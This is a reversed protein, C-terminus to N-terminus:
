RAGGRSQRSSAKGQKKTGKKKNKVCVTKGNRKAKHKGKPCRKPPKTSKGNGPGVFTNSPPTMESPPPPPKQCGEGQCGPGPTAPTPFGGNVRANYVDRLGYDQAVLSAQTVFFVDFGSPTADLFDADESSQGSSILRVCGGNEESYSASAETCSGEGPKEWQYIDARGNGDGPVLSDYANFFVRGGNDALARSPQYESNWGPIIAAAWLDDAPGAIGESILRGTPRGESPNCSICLLRGDGAEAAADYLFVEADPAGSITDSNDYGTPSAKATFVAHLGDPTVRSTRRNPSVSVPSEPTAQAPRSEGGTADGGALTAVFAIPSGAEFFYLNAEGAAAEAGEGNEDSTLVRNSIFYIRNADESVGVVGRVGEAVLESDVTPESGSLDVEGTFLELGVAANDKGTMYVVRSGQTDASVFRAETSASVAVTCGKTAETCKGGSMASQPETANLRLYLSGPGTGSGELSAGTTASWFVRTGDESVARYVSDERANAALSTLSWSTGATASATTATGNPMVSVLRLTAGTSVYLQSSGNNTSVVTRPAAPPAAYVASGQNGDLAVVAGGANTATVECQIANGEDAAALTYEDAAAGGIVAGNRLWQYTFASAGQWTGPDCSLTEGTEPTGTIGGATLRSPPAIGPAPAVVVRASTAAVTAESNSANVRCQIAKGEDAAVLTYENTVAGGIVAGNRLWQYTFTPAGQWTGDACALIEGAEPTGTIAPPATALPLSAGVTVGRSFSIAAGGPNTGTLRCQISTGEDSSVPVYSSATAGGIATGNRFWQYTFTPGGKWPGPQCTLNSGVVAAGVITPAGPLDVAAEDKFGPNPPTTTPVPPVLLTESVVLSTKGSETTTVQCQITKGIDATVYTYTAQTAGGILAGDRLWRYSIAGSGKTPCEFPPRPGGASVALAANARFVTSAMDDSYGQVTPYYATGYPVPGVGPPLTTTILDYGPSGCNSRRYLNPVGLPADSTLVRETDQLVWASCLDESFAKFFNGETAAGLPYLSPVSRPPSISATTWGGSQRQGLYQSVLPAGDPEGFSRFSSFTMRQGTPDAQVFSYGGSRTIDGNSKDLPSVLEYARCDPLNASPGSRFADNSCGSEGGPTRATRFTLEEGVVAAGGGSQAVFRYHYVTGPGLDTLLIVKTLIGTNTVDETLLAGPPAPKTLNCGGDSCKGLGYQLFYRTDPWFRPNIRARLAASTTDVSSAFQSEITPPVAPQPCVEPDPAGGFLYVSDGGGSTTYSSVTLNTSTLGCTPPSTAAIGTSEQLVGEGIATGAGNPELDIPAGGSTFGLVKSSTTQFNVDLVFVNGGSDVALGRPNSAPLQGIQVGTGDLRRVNAKSIFPSSAASNAFAAYISGDPGIALSQVTEGVVAGAIQDKFTGDVDFRQIRNTDGVYVTDGPGVSIFNGLNPQGPKSEWPGFQGEGPGPTGVTGPGCVDGGEVEAATCVDEGTTQNVGGGFMLLFAGDSGYKQVRHNQRDVVYIDGSSDVAVGQPGIFSGPNGGLQGPNRGPSGARCVDGDAPVCIEYNGGPQTTTLNATAGVGTLGEPKPELFNAGGAFDLDAYRGTFEISWPGGAPGSVSLDGPAFPDEFQGFTTANILAEQLQIATPGVGPQYPIAATESLTPASAGEAYRLKFSGGTATVVLQQIENRPKNGPGSAVVSWGFAKVFEGWPTFEQIRNNRTDVEFLHGDIPSTALGSAQGCQGGATGSPCFKSLQPFSQAAQAHSASVFLLLLSVGVFLAVILAPRSRAGNTRGHRSAAVLNEM